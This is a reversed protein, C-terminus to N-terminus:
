PRAPRVVVPDDVEDGFERFCFESSFQEGADFGVQQRLEEVRDPDKVPTLLRAEGDVCTWMTGYTQREGKGVAIQDVLRAYNRNDDSGARRMLDVAFEKFELSPARGVVNFAAQVAEQGVMKETPWGFRELLPRLRDMNEQDVDRQQELRNREIEDPIDSLSFRGGPGSFYVNLEDIERQLAILEHSFAPEKIPPRVVLAFTAAVVVVVAVIGIRRQIVVDNQL